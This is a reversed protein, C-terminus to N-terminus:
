EGDSEDDSATGFLRKDPQFDPDADALKFYDHVDQKPQRWNEIAIFRYPKERIMAQFMQRADRRRELGCFNYFGSEELCANLENASAINNIFVNDTNRRFAPSVSTLSQTLLYLSFSNTKLKDGTPHGIHRGVMAIERLLDSKHLDGLHGLDDLVVAVRNHHMESQKKLKKNHKGIERSKDVIWQLGGLHRSRFRKPIGKFSADSASILFIHTYTNKKQLMQLIYNILVSKGSRRAAVVLNVSSQPIDYPNFQQFGHVNESDVPAGTLGGTTPPAISPKPPLEHPKRRNPALTEEFARGKDHNTNPILQSFVKPQTRLDAGSFFNGGTSMTLFFSIRVSLIIATPKWNCLIGILRSVSIASYVPVVDVKGM